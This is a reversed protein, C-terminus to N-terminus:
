RKLLLYLGAILCVGGGILMLIVEDSYSGSLANTLQSSLGRSKKYGLFFSGAGAIILILSLLKINSKKAM